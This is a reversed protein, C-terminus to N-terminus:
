HGSRIADRIRELVGEIDRMVDRNSVRLVVLGAARMWTDRVRDHASDITHQSGDTEVVIRAEESFFDAFYPGLPVQRRFKIGNLRRGRLQEWLLRESPTSRRRLERARWTAQRLQRGM